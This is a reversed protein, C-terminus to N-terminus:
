TILSLPRNQFDVRDITPQTLRPLRDIRQTHGLREMRSELVDFVVRNWGGGGLALCRDLAPRLGLRKDEVVRLRRSSSPGGEIAAAFGAASPETRRGPQKGTLTTARQRRSRTPSLSLLPVGLALLFRLVMWRPCVHRSLRQGPLDPMQFRQGLCTQAQLRRPRITSNSARRSGSPVTRVEILPRLGAPAAPLNGLLDNIHYLSNNM